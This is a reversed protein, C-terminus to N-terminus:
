GLRRVNRTQERRILWANFEAALLPVAVFLVLLIIIFFDIMGTGDLTGTRFTEFEVPDVHSVGVGDFEGRWVFPGDTQTEAM